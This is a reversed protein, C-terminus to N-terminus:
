VTLPQSPGRAAMVMVILGSGAAGAAVAGGAYQMPVVAAGSDAEPTPSSHYVLAVPPVPEDVAGVGDVAEVPVVVQYTLWVEAAPQSPGRVATETVTFGVGAAGVTVLGTTIQSAAGANASVAVPVDSSQYVVAVPPVPVDAAGVGEVVVGPLVVHYTLWDASPQSPGRAGIVTVMVGRGSAGVAAGTLRQWPAVAAGSAAVPVLRNHYVVAVPPVPDAVAGVGPM